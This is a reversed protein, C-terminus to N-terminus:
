DLGRDPSVAWDLELEIAKRYATEIQPPARRVYAEARERALGELERLHDLVQELKPTVLRNKFRPKLATWVVADVGNNSKAWEGIM